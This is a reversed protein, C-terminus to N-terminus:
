FTVSLKNLEDMWNLTQQEHQMGCKKIIILTWLIDKLIRDQVAALREKIIVEEEM